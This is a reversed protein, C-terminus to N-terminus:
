HMIRTLKLQPVQESKSQELKEVENENSLLVKSELGNDPGQLFKEPDTTFAKYTYEGITKTGYPYVVGSYDQNNYYNKPDCEVFYRFKKVKVVQDVFKSRYRKETVLKKTPQMPTPGDIRVHYEEQIEVRSGDSMTIDSLVIGDEVIIRINGQIKIDCLSSKNM